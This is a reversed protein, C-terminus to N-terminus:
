ADSLSLKKLANLYAYKVDFQMDYWFNVAIARGEADPTQTVHHYWMSPLYLIEGAKVDVRLPPPGDFFLPYAERARALEAGAVDPDM